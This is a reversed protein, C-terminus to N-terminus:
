ARAGRSRNDRARRTRRSSPPTRRRSRAVLELLDALGDVEDAVVPARQEGLPDRERLGLQQARERHGVSGDGVGEGPVVEGHLPLGGLDALLDHLEHGALHRDGRDAVEPVRVRLRRDGCDVVRHLAADEGEVARRDVDRALPRRRSRSPAGPEVDAARVIRVRLGPGALAEGRDGTRLEDDELTAVPRGRLAGRSPQSARTTRPRARSVRDTVSARGRAMSGRWAPRM